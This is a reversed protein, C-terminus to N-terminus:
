IEKLEYRKGEFEIVKGVCTEKQANFKEETLRVGNVWWEKHGDWDISPGDTRHPKGNLWWSKNGDAYEIAPGDERHQKGNLQWEKTGTDYVTVEYTIYSM